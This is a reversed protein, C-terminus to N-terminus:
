TCQAVVGFRQLIEHPYDSNWEEFSFTPDDSSVVVFRVCGFCLSQWAKLEPHAARQAADIEEMAGPFHPARNCDCSGNGESWWFAGCESQITAREGTKTDLLTVNM